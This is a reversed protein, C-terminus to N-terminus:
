TAQLLTPQLTFRPEDPVSRLLCNKKQKTQKWRTPIWWQFYNNTANVTDLMISFPTSPMIETHCHTATWISSAYIAFCIRDKSDASFNCNHFSNGLSIRPPFTVNTNNVAPTRMQLWTVYHNWVECVCWSHFLLMNSICNQPSKKGSHNHCKHCVWCWWRGCPKDYCGFVVFSKKRAQLAPCQCCVEDHSRPCLCM